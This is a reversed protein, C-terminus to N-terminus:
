DSMPTYASVQREFIRFEVRELADLYGQRKARKDDTQAKAVRERADRIQDRNLRRFYNLAFQAEELTSSAPPFDWVHVWQATPAGRTLVAYDTYGTM